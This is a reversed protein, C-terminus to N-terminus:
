SQVDKRQKERKGKRERGKRKRKREYIFTQTRGSLRWVELGSGRERGREWQCLEGMAGWRNRKASIAWFYM